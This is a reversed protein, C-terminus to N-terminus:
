GVLLYIFSFTGARQLAVHKENRSIVPVYLKIGRSCFSHM